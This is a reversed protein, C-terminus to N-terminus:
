YGDDEYLVPCIKYMEDSIEKHTDCPGFLYEVKTFGLYMGFTKIKRWGLLHYKGDHSTYENLIKFQKFECKAM